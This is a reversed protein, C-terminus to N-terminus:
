KQEWVEVAVQFHLQWVRNTLWQLLHQKGGCRSHGTVGIQTANVSSDTQFYDILKSVGWSWAALTGWDTPKRWNGKNCLGILFSTLGAGNDPQLIGCDFLCVGWGNPNCYEWYIDIPTWFGNGIVVIVPVPKLANAPIRLTASIQPKNRVAPYRSIDIIGTIVKQIYTSSGSGSTSTKVSWTVSPLISDPPIVGWLQEQVDKLIEPRRQNWWQAPTTIITGDKMKLLNIPTYTGVKQSDSGPFLGTSIDSYNNWLGFGSRTIIHGAFDTWNNDPNSAKSPWTYPPKNPDNLKAPVTPFSLGLQEMM